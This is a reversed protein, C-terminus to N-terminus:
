GVRANHLVCEAAAERRLASLWKIEVYDQDWVDLFLSSVPYVSPWRRSECVPVPVQGGRGWGDDGEEREGTVTRADGTYRSGFFDIFRCGGFSKSNFWRGDDHHHHVCGARKHFALYAELSKKGCWFIEREFPKRPDSSLNEGRACMKVEERGRDRDLVPRAFHSPRAQRGGGLNGM